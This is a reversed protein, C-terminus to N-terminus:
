RSSLTQWAMTGLGAPRKWKCGCRRCGCKARGRAQPVARPAVNETLAGFCASCLERHWAASDRSVSGAPAPIVASSHMLASAGPSSRVSGEGATSSFRPLRLTCAPRVESLPMPLPHVRPSCALESPPAALARLLRVSPQYIRRVTGSARVAGAGKRHLSIRGLACRPLHPAPHPGCPPRGCFQSRWCPLDSHLATVIM